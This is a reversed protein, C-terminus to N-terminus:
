KLTITTNKQNYQQKDAMELMKNINQMIETDLINCWSQTQTLHHFICQETGEMGHHIDDHDVM